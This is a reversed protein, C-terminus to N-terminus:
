LVEDRLARLEPREAQSIRFETAAPKPVEQTLEGGELEWKKRGGDLLKVDDFGRYRLLWYAYAAFWNNNGGYLVVTADDTVGADALLRSFGEQDLYDRRLPHHLDTSWNWGVAGRIHGQEYAEVDEDVEIVRIGPDDLHEALWDTAVLADPNAYSM